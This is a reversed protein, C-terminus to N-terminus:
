RGGEAAAFITGDDLQAIARIRLAKELESRSPMMRRELRFLVIVGGRERLRRDIDALEEAYEASRPRLTDPSEKWPLWEAPVQAQFALADPFNSWLSGAPKQKRVWAVTSSARFEDRAYGLGRLRVDELLRASRSAHLAFFAAAAIAAAAGFAAGHAALAPRAVSFARSGLLLVTAFPLLLMRDDFPIDADLFTFAGVLVAVHALACAAAIGALRSRPQSTGQRRLLLCVVGVCGLAAALAVGRETLPWDRPLFWRSVTDLAEAAQASAPPHYSLTRGTATGERVVNRGLWLVTPTTALVTFGLANALRVRLTGEKWLALAAAVGVVGAVGAYRALLASAALLTAAAATSPTPRALHLDIAIAAGLIAALALADSGAWVHAEIIPRSVAAIAAVAVGVVHSGSVRMAGWGVLLVNAALLAAGLVRAGSDRAGTVAWSAALAIPYAPPFRTLRLPETEGGATLPAGDGVLTAAASLYAVSDTSIGLGHPTAYVLAAATGAAVLGIPALQRFGAGKTM